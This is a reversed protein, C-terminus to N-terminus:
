HVGRCPHPQRPQGRGGIAASTAVAVSAQLFTRRDSDGAQTKGFTHGMIMAGKGWTCVEICAHDSAEMPRENAEEKYEACMGRHRCSDAYTSAAFSTFLVLSRQYIVPKGVNYM